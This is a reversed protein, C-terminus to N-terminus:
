WTEDLYRSYHVLYVGHSVVVEVVSYYYLLRFWVIELDRGRGPSPIILGLCIILTVVNCHRILRAAFTAYAIPGASELAGRERHPDKKEKEQQLGKKKIQKDIKKGPASAPNVLHPPPACGSDWLRWGHLGIHCPPALEPPPPPASALMPGRASSVRLLGSTM